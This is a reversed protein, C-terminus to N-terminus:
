VEMLLLSKANNVMSIIENILKIHGFLAKYKM